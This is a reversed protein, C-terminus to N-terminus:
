FVSFIGDHLDVREAHRTKAIFNDGSQLVEHLRLTNELAAGPRRQVFLAHLRYRLKEGAVLRWDVDPNAFVVQKKFDVDVLSLFGTEKEILPLVAGPHRSDAISPSEQIPEAVGARKTYRRNRAMLGDGKAANRSRPSVCTIQEEGSRSTRRAPRSTSVRGIAPVRGRPADEASSARSVASRKSLALSRASCRM